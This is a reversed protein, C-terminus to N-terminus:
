LDSWNVDTQQVKVYPDTIGRKILLNRWLSRVRTATGEAFYPPSGVVRLKGDVVAVVRYQKDL